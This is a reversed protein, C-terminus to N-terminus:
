RGRLLALVNTALVVLFLAAVAGGLVVRGASALWAGLAIFGLSSVVAWVLRGRSVPMEDGDEPRAPPPAGEQEEEAVPLSRAFLAYGGFLVLLAAPATLFLNYGVGWREGVGVLAAFLLLYFLALSWALRRERAPSLLYTRGRKGFPAFRGLGDEGRHFAGVAAIELFGAPGDGARPSPFPRPPSSKKRSM